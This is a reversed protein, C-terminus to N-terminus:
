NPAVAKRKKGLITDLDDEALKGSNVYRYLVTRREDKLHEELEEPKLEQILFDNNMPHGEEKVSALEEELIDDCVTLTFKSGLMQLMPVFDFVKVATVHPQEASKPMGVKVAQSQKFRREIQNIAKDRLSAKTLKNATTMVPQLEEPITDDIARVALQDKMVRGWVGKRHVLRHSAPLKTPLQNAGSSSRLAARQPDVWTNSDSLIYLDREDFLELKLKEM